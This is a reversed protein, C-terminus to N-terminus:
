TLMSKVGFGILPMHRLTDLLVVSEALIKVRCQGVIVTVAITQSFGVTGLLKRTDRRYQCHCVILPSGRKTREASPVV